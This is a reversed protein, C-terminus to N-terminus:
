FTDFHLIVKVFLEFEFHLDNPSFIQIKELFIQIKELFIQVAHPVFM